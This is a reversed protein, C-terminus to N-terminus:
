AVHACRGRVAAIAAGLRRIGEAIQQENLTSISLRFCAERPPETFYPEGPSVVVGHARLREYLEGAAVPGPLRVWLLYGGAPETYVADESAVHERLARLAVGMRRRYVRFMRQLHHDYLGRQCFDLVAAQTLTSSSLDSFRKIAVLRDICDRHAVIWGIRLGPMLVKSFTGAYLAINREDMSKIPLSVKGFYKMEEEFGDEVLPVRYAECLALLAERHPQATTIGTPNQFNPMTYFFAIRSKKFCDELIGLDVGAANMPVPVIRVQHLRLLPLLLAYTPEEVAVSTGPGALLRIILDLGQQSGNTVVVQDANAAVGHRRLRQALYERLPLYGAHACYRLVATGPARLVAGVSRRFDDVPILEPDMDLPSFNITSAADRVEPESRQSHIAGLTADVGPASLERWDLLSDPMAPGPLATRPRERVRSYSGPRGDLYGLAWLEEYARYVTSRSVGLREAFRRTPPLIGGAELTGCDIQARLQAVIQLYIPVADQPDLTVLVM